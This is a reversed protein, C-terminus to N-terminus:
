GNVAVASEFLPLGSSQSVSEEDSNAGPSLVVAEIMENRLDEGSGVHYFHSVTKIPLGSFCRDIYDNRRYKNELWMSVAFEADGAILAEAMEEAEGDTFGNYYDTHRGVYPPDCYILDGERASAVTDQWPQTVFEWKKGKMARAAWDIQNAIKTVLAQRFRDPKKCFPVNFDGKKNFRMVGNFCSRTLFLFDLPEGDANFRKRVEYFHEEGKERLLSGERDLYLRASSGTIAGSQVAQYFAIIHRNTDALIAREPAINLAVAGSGLFPEIWRGKGDWRIAAAITPVLKTKIGQTKVPPAKAVVLKPLYPV